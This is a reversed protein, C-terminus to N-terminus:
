VHESSIHMNIFDVNLLQPKVVPSLRLTLAVNNCPTEEESRCLFSFCM